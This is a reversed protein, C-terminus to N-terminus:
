GGRVRSGGRRQGESWYAVYPMGVDADVVSVTTGLLTCTRVRNIIARTLFRAHTMLLNEKFYVHWLGPPSHDANDRDARIKAFGKIVAALAPSVFGDAELAGAMFYAHGPITGNHKDYKEKAAAEAAAGCTEASARQYKACTASVCTFDVWLEKSGAPEYGHAGSFVFDGPVTNKNFRNPAVGRVERKVSVGAKKASNWVSRGLMNHLITWEADGTAHYNSLLNDGLADVMIHKGQNDHAHKLVRGALNAATICSLPLRLYRQARLIVEEDTLQNRTVRRAVLWRGDCSNYHAMDVTSLKAAELARKSKAKEVASTLSHQYRSAGEKEAFAEFTVPLLEESLERLEHVHTVTNHVAQLSPPLDKSGSVLRSVAVRVDPFSASLIRPSVARVSGAFAAEHTTVASHIGCGMLRTPLLIREAALRYTLPARAARLDPLNYIASFTSILLEDALEAAPKFLDPRVTRMLYGLKTSVCVRLLHGAIDRSNRADGIALERLEACANAFSGPHLPQGDDAKETNGVAHLAAGKIYADTGIYSGLTEMGHVLRVVHTDIPCANRAAAAREHEEDSDDSPAFSASWCCTKTKGYTVELCQESFLERLRAFAAAVSDPPGVLHVDDCIARILIDPFEEDVGELITHIGLAFLFSGLTDGQQQGSVSSLKAPLTNNGYVLLDTEELYFQAVLPLLHPFHKRIASLFTFRKQSNFANKVDVHLVVYGPNLQLALNIEHIVQECGSSTFVGLQLCTSDDEGRFLTEGDERATNLAGRSAIRREVAGMSLPRFGGARKALALTSCSGWLRRLNDDLHGNAFVSNAFVTFHALLNNKGHLCLRQWHKTRWSLPGPAANASVTRLASTIDEPRLTLEGADNLWNRVTEREEATLGGKTPHLHQLERVAADSDELVASRDLLAQMGKSSEGRGVRACAREHRQLTADRERQPRSGSSQLFAEHLAEWHGEAFAAVRKAVTGLPTNPKVRRRGRGGSRSADKRLVWRPYLALASHASYDHPAQDLREFVPRLAAVHKALARDGPLDLVTYARPLQHICDLLSCAFSWPLDEASPNRKHNSAQMPPALLPVAAVPAALTHEEGPQPPVAAHGGTANGNGDTAGAVADLDPHVTPIRRLVNWDSAGPCQGLKGRAATWHQQLGTKGSFLNCCFPCALQESSLKSITCLHFEMAATAEMQQGIVNVDEGARKRAVEIGHRAARALAPNLHTLSRCRGSPGTLIPPASATARARQALAAASTTPPATPPLSSTAPAAAPAPQRSPVPQSASIPPRRSHALRPPSDPKDARGAARRPRLQYLHSPAAPAALASPAAAAKASMSRTAPRGVATAAEGNAKATGAAEAPPAAARAAETAARMAAQKRLTDAVEGPDDEAINIFNCNPDEPPLGRAARTANRGERDQECLRREAETAANHRTALSHLWEWVELPLLGTSEAPVFTDSLVRFVNLATFFGCSTGDPQQYSHGERLRWTTDPVGSPFSDEVASIVLPDMNKRLKCSESLSDYVVITRTGRQVHYLVWHVGRGSGHPTTNSSILIDADQPLVVARPNTKRLDQADEWAAVTMAVPTAPPPPCTVPSVLQILTSVANSSLLGATAFARKALVAAPPVLGAVHPGDDEGDPVVAGSPPGGGLQMPPRDISARTPRLAHKAAAATANRRLKDDKCKWAAAEDAALEADWATEHQPTPRPPAQPCARLRARIRALIRRLVAVTPPCRRRFQWRAHRSTLGNGCLLAHHRAAQVVAHLRSRAAAHPSRRRIGGVRLASTTPRWRRIITKRYQSPHTGSVILLAPPSNPLFFTWSASYAPSPPTARFGVPEHEPCCGLQLLPGSPPYEPLWWDDEAAVTAVATRDRKRKLRQRMRRQWQPARIGTPVAGASAGFEVLATCSGDTFDSWGRLALRRRRRTTHVGSGRGTSPACRTGKNRAGTLSPLTAPPLPAASSRAQLASATKLARYKNQREDELRRRALLCDRGRGGLLSLASFVVDFRKQDNNFEIFRFRAKVALPHSQHYLSVEGAPFVM